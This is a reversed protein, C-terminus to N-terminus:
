WLNEITETVWLAGLFITTNSEFFVLVQPTQGTDFQCDVFDMLESKLLIEYSLQYTTNEEPEINVPAFFDM